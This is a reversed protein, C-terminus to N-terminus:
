KKFKFIIYYFIFYVIWLPVFGLIFFSCAKLIIKPEHNIAAWFGASITEPINIQEDLQAAAQM